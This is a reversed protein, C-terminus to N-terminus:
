MSFFIIIQHIIRDVIKLKGLASTMSNLSVGNEYAQRLHEHRRIEHMTERYSFFLLINKTFVVTENTSFRIEYADITSEFLHQNKIIIPLMEILEMKKVLDEFVLMIRQTEITSLKTRAPEHLRLPDLQLRIPKLDSGQARSLSPIM